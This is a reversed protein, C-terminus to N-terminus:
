LSRDRKNDRTKEEIVKNSRQPNVYDETMTLSETVIEEREIAEPCM